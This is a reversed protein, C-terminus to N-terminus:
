KCEKSQEGRRTIRALPPTNGYFCVELPYSSQTIGPTSLLTEVASEFDGEFVDPADVLFNKEADWRLRWGAQKAWRILTNQLSVDKLEVSWKETKKAPTEVIAPAPPPTPVAAVAPKAAAAFPMDALPVVYPENVVKVGQAQVCGMGISLILAGICKVKNSRMM